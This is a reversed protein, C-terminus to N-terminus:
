QNKITCYKSELSKKIGERFSTYKIGFEKEWNTVPFLDGATLADLQDPIFPKKGTLLGYIKLLFIFLFIPIKVFIKKQKKERFIIKILEIFYIKEKGIIGYIKRRPKKSLLKIIIKAFDAVYLPQRLYKGDGPFLVVPFKDFKRIIFELHKTNFPGYMLPPRLITYPLNSKAVLNEGTKKTNTYNDKAISIVVSSSVHILHKIKYKECALVVNKVSLINNKIYPGKEPASIQAQLQIVCDARKFFDVWKEDYVSLDACVFKIKSNIQKLLNEKTKEKSIAIIDYKQFDLLTLLNLGVLGTAGTIIVKKRKKSM